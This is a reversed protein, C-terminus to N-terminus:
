SNPSSAPQAPPTSDSCGTAAKKRESQYEKVMEWARRTIWQWLALDAVMLATLEDDTLGLLQGYIEAIDEQTKDEKDLLFYFAPSLNVWVGVSGAEALGEDYKSLHLDRRIKLKDFNLGSM